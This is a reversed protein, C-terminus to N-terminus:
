AGSPSFKAIVRMVDADSAFEGADAQVLGAEIDAIQWAQLAVYEPDDRRRHRGPITRPKRDSSAM